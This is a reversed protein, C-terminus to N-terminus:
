LSTHFVLWHAFHLRQEYFWIHLFYWYCKNLNSETGGNWYTSLFNLRLWKSNEEERDQYWPTKADGSWWFVGQALSWESEDISFCVWEREELAGQEWSRSPVCPCKGLDPIGPRASDERPADVCLCGDWGYVFVQQQETFIICEKRGAKGLIDLMSKKTNHPSQGWTPFAVSTLCSKRQKRGQVVPKLHPFLFICLAWCRTWLIFFLFIPLVLLIWIYIFQGTLPWKFCLSQYICKFIHNSNVGSGCAGKCLLLYGVMFSACRRGDVQECISCEEPQPEHWPWKMTSKLKSSTELILM